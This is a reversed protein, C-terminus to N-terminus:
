DCDKFKIVFSIEIYESGENHKKFNTLEFDGDCELDQEKVKDYIVDLLPDNADELLYEANKVLDSVNEYDDTTMNLYGVNGFVTVNM